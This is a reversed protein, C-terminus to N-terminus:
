CSSSVLLFKHEAVSSSKLTIFTLFYYYNYLLDSQHMSGKMM